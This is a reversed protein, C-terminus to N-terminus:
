KGELQDALVDLVGGMASLWLHINTIDHIDVALDLSKDAEHLAVLHQTRKRLRESQKRFQAARFHLMDSAAM